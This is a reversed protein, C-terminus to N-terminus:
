LNGQSLVSSNEMLSTVSAYRWTKLLLRAFFMLQSIILLLFVGSTTVPKWGPLISLIIIGLAIQALILFLMLIYSSKIKVFTQSFGFGLASFCSLNANSAKGARAYDAVLLFVPIILLLFAVTFIM